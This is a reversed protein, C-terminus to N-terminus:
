AIKRWIKQDNGSSPKWLARPWAARGKENRRLMSEVRRLMRFETVLARKRAIQDSPVSVFL